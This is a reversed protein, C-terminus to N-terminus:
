LSSLKDKIWEEADQKTRCIRTLEYKFNKPTEPMEIVAIYPKSKYYESTISQENLKSREISGIDYKEADFTRKLIKTEM